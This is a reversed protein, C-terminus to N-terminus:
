ECWQPLPTPSIEGAGRNQLKRVDDIAAAIRDSGSMFDFEFSFSKTEGSEIPMVRGNNKEFSRTNPFNIAPEVGTVYIDGNPRQAKWLTFFPFEKKNFSLSFGKSGTEDALVVSTQGQENSALDFLYCTEPRGPIPQTYVDWEGLEAAANGDRPCMKEFAAYFHAGPTILPYGTNIHYLLEFEDAVSALNTVSDCVSLISSGINVSYVTKFLFRRGFVSAELTEGSLLIKGTQACITLEVKRAPLNSLRGHLPYRLVGNSDFEPAGNSELGCRAIWECFGELWGCGNPAFVPVFNPHVPGKVPSDWKLEIDDYSANLVNMARTLLVTFRLKGAEIEVVDVGEQVGGHLRKKTVRYSFKGSSTVVSDQIDISDLFVRNEADVITITKEM